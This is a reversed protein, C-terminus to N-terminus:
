YGVAGARTLAGRAAAFLRDRLASFHPEQDLTNRSRQPMEREEGLYRVFAEHNIGFDEDPVSLFQWQPDVAIEPFMQMLRRIGAHRWEHRAVEPALGYLKPDFAGGFLSVSPDGGPGSETQGFVPGHEDFEEIPSVNFRSPDLGLRLLPDSLLRKTAPSTDLDFALAQENLMRTLREQLTEKM